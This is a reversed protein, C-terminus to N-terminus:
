EQTEYVEWSDLKTSIQDLKFSSIVIVYLAVLQVIFAVFISIFILSNINNTSTIKNM